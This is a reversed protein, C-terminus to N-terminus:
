SDSDTRVRRLEDDIVAALQEFPSVGQVLPVPRGNIYLAPTGPVGVREGEKIDLEVREVYKNSALCQSFQQADLELAGAKATLQDVTLENQAAFMADHMEWFKGQDEACLSAEAAKQAHPHIASLPFQRFAIRVKEGYAEQVQKLAPAISRCAPCEFDSFEVLTVPADEPGKAPASSAEIELRLPELHTTVPYKERLVDLLKQRVPTARQQLLYGKIQGSVEEKPQRIRAQNEKYFTDVEADTVPTVQSDVEAIVLEAASVGRARAEFEILRTDILYQLSSELIRQREADLKSLQPAALAELEAMTVLEGAIEAVPDRAVPNTQPSEEAALAQSAALVFVLTACAAVSTLTTKRFISNMSESRPIHKDQPEVSMDLSTNNHRQLLAALYSDPTARSTRCFSWLGAVIRTSGQQPPESKDSEAM